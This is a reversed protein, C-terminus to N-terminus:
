SDTREFEMIHPLEPSTFLPYGDRGRGDSVVMFLVLGAATSSNALTDLQWTEGSHFSVAM